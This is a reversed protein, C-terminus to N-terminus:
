THAAWPKSFTYVQVISNTYLLLVAGYLSQSRSLGLYANSTEVQEEDAEQGQAHSQPM